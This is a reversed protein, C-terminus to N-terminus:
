TNNIVNGIFHQICQKSSKAKGREEPTSKNEFALRSTFVKIHVNDKSIALLYQPIQLAGFYPDAVM